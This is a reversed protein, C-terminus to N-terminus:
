IKKRFIKKVSVKSESLKDKLITKAKTVNNLTNNIKNIGLKAKKYDDM